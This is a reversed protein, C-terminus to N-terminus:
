NRYTIKFGSLTADGHLIFRLLLLQNEPLSAYLTEYDTNLWDGLVMEESYSEGNDVSYSVGVDGSYEATMLSIGLISFHSMDITVEIASPFPYATINTKILEAKGGSKWYLVTPNVLPTMTEATPLETFGYKIFMAATLNEIIVKTLVGDIITYYLGEQQILFLATYSEETEETKETGIEGILTVDSPYTDTIVTLGDCAIPIEPEYPLAGEYLLETDAYISINGEGEFLYIRHPNDFSFVTSEEALTYVCPEARQWIYLSDDILM